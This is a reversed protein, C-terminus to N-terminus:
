GLRAALRKPAALRYAERVHDAVEDWDVKGDLRVGVWGKHGVYPPVFLRRPDAAVLAEQVEPTSKCWLAVRGDGHHNNLYMGFMKERVRFTPSGWAIKESTEPLALCIARLRDLIKDPM